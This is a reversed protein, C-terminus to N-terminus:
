FKYDGFKSEENGWYIKQVKKLYHPLFGSTACFNMYTGHFWNSHSFHCKALLTNCVKWAGQFYAHGYSNIPDNMWHM